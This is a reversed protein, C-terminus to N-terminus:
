HRSWSHKAGGGKPQFCGVESLGDGKPILVYLEAGSDATGAKRLGLWQMSPTALMLPISTSTSVRLETM